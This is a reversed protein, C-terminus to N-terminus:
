RARPDRRGPCLRAASGARRRTGSGDGARAVRVGPGPVALVRVALVRVALVRVALVRVALVRVALGRIALVRVRLVPVPLVRVAPARLPMARARRVRVRTVRGRPVERSDPGVRFGPLVLLGLRGQFGVLGPCGPLGPGGPGGQCGTRGPATATPGRAQTPARLRVAPRRRGPSVGTPVSRIRGPHSGRVPSIGHAEYEAQRAARRAPRRRATRTTPVRRYGAGTRCGTSGALYRGATRRVV